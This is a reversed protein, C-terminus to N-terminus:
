PEFRYKAVSNDYFTPVVIFGTEPVFTLNAAFAGPGTTDLVKAVEGSPTISYVKGRWHSVIYNGRGDVEVGDIIGSGLNVITTVERTELDAAKLCTDGNNGWVLKGGDVVLGNPDSVEEGSLWEEFEGGSFRYIVGRPPDSVYYNGEGAAAVDNPMGVNVIPYRKSIKGAAIDIEVLGGREVVILRDGDVAMGTPNNLRGVWERNEIEGNESLVSIYQLGEGRSPHFADYNSVYYVKRRPDYVVTEPTLFDDPTEWIKSVGEHQYIASADRAIVGWGGFSEIVLMMLENDGKKMPVHVADFLGVIGQFGPDRSQYSSNGSFVLVGNFFLSM